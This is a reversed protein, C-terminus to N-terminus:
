SPKGPSSQRGLRMFYKEFYEYVFYSLVLTIVMPTLLKAAWPIEHSNKEVWHFIFAWVTFVLPHLLYLSYSGEGLMKFATHLMGPLRTSLKYAGMCILICALTFLWRNAGTILTVTNGEAPISVFLLLGLGLLVTATSQKFARAKTWCGIVCGSVFFFIQNLPNVYDHWQDALPQHADLLQFAFLHHLVGALALPAIMMWPKRMCILLLLPFVGYFVLENGISWVGTSFYVDWRVFGFLGTLNLVVDVPNPLKRSLVIAIVTVLWLLPFIRFIRKKFFNGISFGAGTQSYEYVHYLTLGSLVYFIAVGYVGVRGMFQDSTFAGDLWFLYHYVMIGLAALGRLYDLSYLRNNM